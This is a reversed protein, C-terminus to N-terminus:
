LLFSCLFLGMKERKGETRESHNPVKAWMILAAIDTFPTQAHTFRHPSPASCFYIIGTTVTRVLKNWKIYFVHFGTILDTHVCYKSYIVEISNVM